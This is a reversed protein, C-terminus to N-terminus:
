VEAYAARPETGNLKEYRSTYDNAPPQLTAPVHEAAPSLM